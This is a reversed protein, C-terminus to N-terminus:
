KIEVLESKIGRLALTVPQGKRDMHPFFALSHDDYEPDIQSLYDVPDFKEVYRFGASVLTQSLDKGNWVTKHYIFNQQGSVQWKGFLPGLINQLTDTSSYIKILSDFDPVALFLKGAPKLVRNWERLVVPAQQRDFYEFTHSSYIEDVSSSPLFSLDDVSRKYDIHSFDAIDIHTFGALYREGCGLHLKM